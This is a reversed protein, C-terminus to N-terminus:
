HQQVDEGHELLRHLMLDGEPLLHCLLQAPGVPGPHVVVGAIVPQQKQQQQRQPSGRGLTGEGNDPYGLHTHRDQWKANM